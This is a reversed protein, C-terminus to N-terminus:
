SFRARCQCRRCRGVILATLGVLTLFQSFREVNRTLSPAANARSRIRWGSDPFKSKAEAIVKALNGDSGDTLNVRTTWNILSGPQVLKTQALAELNIIVKPGFSIGDPFGTRSM